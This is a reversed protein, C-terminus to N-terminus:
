RVRVPTGPALRAALWSILEDDMRICGHSSASGLPDSLLPGSRGHLAVRGPGGGYNLLTNSHATLHLAWPGLESGPAQRVREYVAFLGAPTPTRRTGVVVPWSRILRGDRYASARRARRDVDVRWRVRSVAVRAAVVWGSRANPRSPLELRLWRRGSADRAVGLVLLSVSGGDWAATSSIAGRVPADPRPAGHVPTSAVIRARWAVHATPAAVGAAGAPAVASGIGLLTALAAGLGRAVSARSM